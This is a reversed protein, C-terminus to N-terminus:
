WGKFQSRRKELFATVGEDYDRTMRWVKADAQGAGSVAGGLSVANISAKAGMAGLPANEAIESALRRLHDELNAAPVM